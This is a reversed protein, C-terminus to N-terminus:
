RLQLMMRFPWFMLPQWFSTVRLFSGNQYMEKLPTERRDQWKLTPVYVSSVVLLRPPSAKKRSLFESKWDFSYVDERIERDPFTTYCIRFRSWPLVMHDYLVTGEPWVEFRVFPLPILLFIIIVVTVWRDWLRAKKAAWYGGLLDTADRITPLNGM